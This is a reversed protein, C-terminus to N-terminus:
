PAGPAAELFKRGKGGTKTRFGIRDGKMEAVVHDGELITGRLMEKAIPTELERQITRKLPRAGYVPDYGVQALHRQVQKNMELSIGKEQLRERLRNVQIEVIAELQAETLARFVMIEDVRNLFEPRFHNRLAELVKHKMTQYSKEDSGM